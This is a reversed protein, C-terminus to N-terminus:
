VHVMFEHLTESGNHEDIRTVRQPQFYSVSRQIFSRLKDYVNVDVPSGEDDSYIIAEIDKESKTNDGVIETRCYPCEDHTMLWSMLCEHHFVHECKLNRSWSLKEGPELVELCISCELTSNNDQETQAGDTGGYAPKMELNCDSCQPQSIANCKVKLSSKKQSLDYENNCEQKKMGALRFKATDFKKIIGSMIQKNIKEKRKEPTLRAEKAVEEARLRRLREQVLNQDLQVQSRRPGFVYYFALLGFWLFVSQTITDLPNDVIVENISPPSSPVITENAGLGYYNSSSVTGNGGLSFIMFSSVTENDGLSYDNSSSASPLQDSFYDEHSINM